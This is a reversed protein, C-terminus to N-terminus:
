QRESFVKMNREHGFMIQLRMVPQIFTEMNNQDLLPFSPPSPSSSYM